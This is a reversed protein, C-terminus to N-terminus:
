KNGEGEEEDDEDPEIQGGGLNVNVDYELEEDIFKTKRRPVKDIPQEGKTKVIDAKLKTM